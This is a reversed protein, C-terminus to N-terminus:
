GSRAQRSSDAATQQQQQRSDPLKRKQGTTASETHAALSQAPNPKFYLVSVSIGDTQVEDRFNHFRRRDPGLAAWRSFNICNTFRGWWYDPRSAFEKCGEKTLSPVVEGAAKLM